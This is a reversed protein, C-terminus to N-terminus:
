SSERLHTFLYPRMRQLLAVVSEEPQRTLYCGLIMGLPFDWAVVASVLRRDDPSSPGDFLSGVLFDSTCAERRAVSIENWVSDTSPVRVRLLQPSFFDFPKFQPLLTVQLSSVHIFLKFYLLAIRQYGERVVPDSSAADIKAQDYIGCRQFTQFFAKCFVLVAVFGDKARYTSIIFLILMAQFEFLQEPSPNPTLSDNFRGLDGGSENILIDHYFKAKAQAEPTKMMWLGAILIAVMLKPPQPSNRITTQHLLPWHRHFDKFYLDILHLRNPAQLLSSTSSLLTTGDAEALAPHAIPAENESTADEAGTHSETM